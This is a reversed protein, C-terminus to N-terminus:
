SKDHRLDEDRIKRALSIEADTKFSNSHKTFGQALRIIRDFEPLEPPKWHTQGDWNIKPAFNGRGDTDFFALRLNYPKIEWIGDRLQNYTKGPPFKGTRAFRGLATIVWDYPDIQTDRPENSPAKASIHGAELKDLFESAPSTHDARVACEVRHRNGSVILRRRLKPM